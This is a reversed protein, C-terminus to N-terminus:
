GTRGTPFLRTVLREAVELRRQLHARTREQDASEDRAWVRLTDLLLLTLGIEEVQRRRGTADLSAADRLWHVTRSLNFILPVWHHPHSLYIKGRIMQVAVRRHPALAEFWRWLIAFLRERAPRQEFGSPLPALMATWARRFLADAVADLDRFHRQLEAMPMGLRAAVLRLRVHDWETEEALALAADVIREVPDVARTRRSSMKRGSAM